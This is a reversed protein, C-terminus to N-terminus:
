DDAEDTQNAQLQRQEAIFQETTQNFLQLTDSVGTVTDQMQSSLLTIYQLQNRVEQMSERYRLEFEDITM